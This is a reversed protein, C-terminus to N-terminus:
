GDGCDNTTDDDSNTFCEPYRGNDAPNGGIMGQCDNYFAQLADGTLGEQGKKQGNFFATCQGHKNHDNVKDPGPAAIAVGAGFVLSGAVLASLLMKRMHEMVGMSIRFRQIAQDPEGM